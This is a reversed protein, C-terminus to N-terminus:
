FIRQKIIKKKYFTQDATINWMVVSEKVAAFLFRFKNSPLIVPFFHAQPELNFVDYVDQFHFEIKFKFYTKKQFHDVKKVPCKTPIKGNKMFNNIMTRFMPKKGLDGISCLEFIIKPFLRQYEKEFFLLDM